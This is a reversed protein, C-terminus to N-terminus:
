ANPRSSRKRGAALQQARRVTIDVVETSSTTTGSGARRQGISPCPKVEGFREGALYARLHAETYRRTKAGATLSRIVGVVAMARLTKEDLGLVRAATKATITASTGFAEALLRETPALALAAEGM